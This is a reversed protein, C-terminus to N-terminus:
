FPLQDKKRNRNEEHYCLTLNLYTNDLYKRPFIHEIDYQSQSGILERMRFPGRGTYPCIWNCEDALIIKLIDDPSPNDNDIHLEDFIRKKAKDRKKRNREIQDSLTKRDKRSRKLDRALEIRVKEPKGYQRILENVVKRLETMARIVAPNNVDDRWDLVPPLFDEPEVAEFSQPYEQQRATAFPVGQELHPLLRAIAQRSLSGYGDELELGIDALQAANGPDVRWASQLRRILAARHEYHLLDNVVADQEEVALEVWHEGFCPAVKAATRNGILKQDGDGEHSFTYKFLSLKAKPNASQKRDQKARVDLKLLKRADNFKLDGERQLSDLLTTRQEATLEEHRGTPAVISLDNLKQLLRFRQYSPLAVPVRRRNPELSCRGILHSQSKLDRQHFIAEKLEDWFSTPLAPHHKEQAARIRDYEDEYMARSTWRKRIRQEDPDLTTFYQGLTMEGMDQELQSIAKKVKSREDAKDTRDTRRNSKFGRRQPLHYLARGLAHPEVTGEVAKARLRYPLLHHGIRDGDKLYATRLKADLANICDHRATPTSSGPDPLLGAHRLLNFVRRDRQRRRRIQRRQQRADRRPIARSGDKGHEIDGEVGAEFIRVGIEMVSGSKDRTIAIAAWGISSTGIDLGLVWQTAHEGM